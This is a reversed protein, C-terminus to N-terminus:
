ISNVVDKEASIEFEYHTSVVTGACLKYVIENKYVEICFIIRTQQESDTKLYVIDGINFKNDILM